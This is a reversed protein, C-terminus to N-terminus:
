LGRWSLIGRAALPNRECQSNLSLRPAIVCLAVNQEQIGRETGWRDWPGLFRTGRRDKGFLSVGRTDLDRKPAGFVWALTPQVQALPAPSSSSNLTPGTAAAAATRRPPMAQAVLFTRWGDSARGDTDYTPASASDDFPCSEDM